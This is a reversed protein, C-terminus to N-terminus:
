ARNHMESTWCIQVLLTGLSLFWFKLREWRDAVMDEHVGMLFISKDM